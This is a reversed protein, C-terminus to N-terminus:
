YAGTVSNVWAEAGAIEQATSPGGRVILAYLRGQFGLTFQDRQLIYLPYTGFNGGGSDATGVSGSPQANINQTKVEIAADLDFGGAITAKTNVTVAATTTLQSAGSGRRRLEYRNSSDTALHFSGTNGVSLEVLMGTSGATTKMAGAWFNLQDSASFNISPTILAQSGSATLYFKGQADQNLTPRKANTSQTAHNGRGSKDLMRGVPQGTGTVPVTGAADQFLTTLDSPDFWGGVEGAAFLSAPNFPAPTLVQGSRPFRLGFGFSM